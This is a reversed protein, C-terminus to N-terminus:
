EQLALPRWTVTVWVIAGISCRPSPVRTWRSRRAVVGDHLDGDVGALPPIVADPGIHPVQDAM